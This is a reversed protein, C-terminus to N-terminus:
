NITTKQNVIDLESKIFNIDKKYHKMDWDRNKNIANQLKAEALKLCKELAEILKYNKKSM